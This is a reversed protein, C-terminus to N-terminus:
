WCCCGTASRAHPQTYRYLRAILRLDLPRSHVEPEEAARHRALLAACDAGASLQTSSERLPSERPLSENPNRM